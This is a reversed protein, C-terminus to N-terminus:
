MYYMIQVYLYIFSLSTILILMAPSEILGRYFQRRLYYQIRYKQYIIGIRKVCLSKNQKLFNWESSSSNGQSHGILVRIFRM